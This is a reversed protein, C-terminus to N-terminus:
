PLFNLEHRASKLFNLKFQIMLRPRFTLVISNRSSFMSFRQSRPDPLVIKSPACFICVYFIIIQIVDFTFLEESYVSFILWWSASLIQLSYTQYLIQTWFINLIKVVVSCFIPFINKVSGENFIHVSPLYASPFISM